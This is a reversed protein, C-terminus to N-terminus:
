ERRTVRKTLRPCCTSPAVTSDELDDMMQELERLTRADRYPVRAFDAFTQAMRSCLTRVAWQTKREWAVLWDVRYRLGNHAGHRTLARSRTFRRFGEAGMFTVSRVELPEDLRTPLKAAAWVRVIGYRGTAQRSTKSWRKYL